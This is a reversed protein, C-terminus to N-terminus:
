WIKRDAVRVAYEGGKSGRNLPKKGFLCLFSFFICLFL